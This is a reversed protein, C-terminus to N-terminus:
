GLRLLLLFSAVAHGLRERVQHLRRHRIAGPAPACTPVQAVPVRQRGLDASRSKRTLYADTVLPMAVMVFLGIPIVIPMVISLLSSGDM